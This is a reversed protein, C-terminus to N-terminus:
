PRPKMMLVTAGSRGPTAAKPKRVPAPGPPYPWFFDPDDWAAAEQEDKPLVTEDTVDRQCDRCIFIRRGVEDKGIDVRPEAPDFPVRCSACAVRYCQRAEDWYMNYQKSVKRM